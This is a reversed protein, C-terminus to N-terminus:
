EREQIERSWVKKARLLFRKYEDGIKVQIATEQIIVDKQQVLSGLLFLASYLIIQM